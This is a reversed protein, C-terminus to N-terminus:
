LTRNTSYISLSSYVDCLITKNDSINIKYYLHYNVQFPLTSEVYGLSRKAGAPDFTVTFEICDEISLSKVRKGLDISFGTGSLSSQPLNFSLPYNGINTLTVTRTTVLGYIIYGFDLTYEPLTPKLKTSKSGNFYQINNDQVFKAITINEVEKEVEEITYQLFVISIM